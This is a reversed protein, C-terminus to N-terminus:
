EGHRGLAAGGVLESAELRPPLLQALSTVRRAEEATPERRVASEEAQGSAVEKEFCNTITTVRQMSTEGM